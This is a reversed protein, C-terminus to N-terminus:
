LQDPVLQRLLVARQQACPALERRRGLRPVGGVARHPVGHPLRHVGDDAHEGHHLLLLGGRHARLLPEDDVGDGPCARHGGSEHLRQRPHQVDTVRRQRGTRRSRRGQHRPPRELEARQDPVRGEGGSAQGAAPPEAERVLQLGTGQGLPHDAVVLSDEVKHQVHHASQETSAVAMDRCATEERKRDAAATADGTLVVVLVPDRRWQSGDAEGAAVLNKDPEL